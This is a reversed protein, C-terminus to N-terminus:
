KKAVILYQDYILNLDNTRVNKGNILSTYMNMSNRSKRIKFPIINEMIIFKSAKKLFYKKTRHMSKIFISNKFYTNKNYYKKYFLNIDIDNKNLYLNMILLGNKKLNKLLNDIIKKQNEFLNITGLMTILDFKKNLIKNECSGNYFKIDKLFKNKKNKSILTKDIDLGYFENNKYKMKFFYLFSGNGCGVDIIKKNKFEKKSKNLFNFIFKFDNKLIFFNKSDLYKKNFFNKKFHKVSNM